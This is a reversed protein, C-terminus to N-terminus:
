RRRRTTTRTLRRTKGPVRRVMAPGHDHAGHDHDEHDHDTHDGGGGGKGKGFENPFTDIVAKVLDLASAFAVNPMGHYHVDGGNTVGLDAQFPKGDITVDYTTKVVVHHGKYDIERVSDHGHAMGTLLKKFYAANQQATALSADASIPGASSTDVAAAARRRTPITKRAM